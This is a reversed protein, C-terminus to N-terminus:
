IWKHHFGLATLLARLYNWEVRDFAKSMDTKIALFEQSISPHIKLAHIMEHAIVINDSILRQSVFASQTPSVIVALYPQFRRVLIKSVVKYLVSCLSIPRLDSMKVPKVIKAPLLCLHTYNWESPFCCTKFFMLVESTVHDGVVDWYKQYFLGSMGDPGPASSAKVLFIPEKVEEKSVRKMLCVNMGSTVRSQFGQFLQEFSEPNSSKYLDNFYALAVEAKSAEARQMNGNVDM